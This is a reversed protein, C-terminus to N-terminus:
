PHTAPNQQHGQPEPQPSRPSRRRLTTLLGHGPSFLYGLTFVAGNALVVMPGSATDLYYSAYLGVLACAAALTPAILLM